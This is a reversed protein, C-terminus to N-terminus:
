KGARFAAFMNEIRQVVAPPTASISKAAAAVEEGTMPGDVPASEKAADALFAPDRVTADFARRLINLRTAPIQPPAYYNKSLDQRALLLQLAQRDAENKALDVFLPVDPMEPQKMLGFQTLVTVKHEPLWDPEDAKLSSWGNGFTGDIEGREMALKVDTSNPYGTVIKVKLGFFEKAVIAYDISAAGVANGGFTAEKTKLDELSQVPSTHWVYAVFPDRTINGIWSLRNVDFKAGEPSLLPATMTSDHAAAFVTGDRPAVDAVYNAAVLGAAGGMNQVVIHPHGPIHEPMHEAILRAFADYLGGPPTPVILRLVKGSYFNDEPVDAFSSGGIAFFALAAASNLLSQGM